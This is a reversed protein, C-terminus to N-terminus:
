PVEVPLMSSMDLRHNVTASARSAIHRAAHEDVGCLTTVVVDIGRFIVKSISATPHRTESTYKPEATGPKSPIVAFEQVGAVSRTAIVSSLGERLTWFTEACSLVVWLASQTLYGVRLSQVPVKQLQCRTGRFRRKAM